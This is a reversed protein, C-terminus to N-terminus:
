LRKLRRLLEVAERSSWGTGVSGVSLLRGQGDHVGLLLSGVEQARDSRATYGAVVFEQRRQCKLKLWGESRRSEYPADARKAIVGELHMRCAAEVIDEPSAEFAESLRISDSAHQALLARLALRRERLGVGRLDW